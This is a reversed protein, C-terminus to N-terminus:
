FLNLEIFPNRLFEVDFVSLFHCKIVFDEEVVDFSSSAYFDEWHLTFYSCIFLLHDGHSESSSLGIDYGFDEMDPYTM